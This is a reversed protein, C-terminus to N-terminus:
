VSVVPILNPQIAFDLIPPKKKFRMEIEGKSPEMENNSAVIAPIIPRRYGSFDSCPSFTESCYIHVVSGTAAHFDSNVHVESRATYDVTTGSSVTIASGAINLIDWAQFTPLM